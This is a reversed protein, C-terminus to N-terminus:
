KVIECRGNSCNPPPPAGCDPTPSPLCEANCNSIAYNNLGDILGRRAATTTLACSNDCSNQNYFVVCDADQMCAFSSFKAILNQRLQFYADGQAQCIQPDPECHFCCGNPNPVMVELENCDPPDCPCITPRGANGNGAASGNGTASGNSTGASSAPTGGTNSPEDQQTSAYRGGCALLWGLPLLLWLRVVREM